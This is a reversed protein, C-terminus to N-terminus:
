PTRSLAGRVAAILLPLDLQVTNWVISFDITDYGHILRNRMGQVQIWPVEPIAEMADPSLRKSAEGIVLLRFVILDQFDIDCRLQDLTRGNIRRLVLEAAAPIDTLVARDRPTVSRPM